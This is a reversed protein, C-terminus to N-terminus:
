LNPLIKKVIWKLCKTKIINDSKFELELLRDSIRKLLSEENSESVFVQIKGIENYVEFNEKAPNIRIFKCGLEKELAKQREIECEIDRDQHGKEDIEVALEQKPFYADIRYGLVCHQFIIKENPFISRIKTLISQEPTMILDQQNFGLRTKFNISLTTRCDMIIQVAFDERLFRRCPQKVCKQLEQRQKKLYLSYKSAVERLNSYELQKEINKKM